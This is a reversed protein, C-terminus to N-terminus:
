EATNVGYHMKRHCNPCLAIANDLTDEGGDALHKKHHVELYPTNDRRRIFPAAQTCHECKGEARFLASAVVDPNRVIVELTVLKRQPNRPANQLRQLRDAQSDQGSREVEADFNAILQTLSPIQNLIEEFKQVILRLSCRTTNAKEEYYDIHQWIADLAIRLGEAGQNEFIKALFFEFYANSLTRTFRTGNRLNQFAYLIDKASNLNIDQETHLRKAGAIFVLEGNFISVATEYSAEIKAKDKLSAM